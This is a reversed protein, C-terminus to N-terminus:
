NFAFGSRFTCLVLAVMLFFIEFTISRFHDSMRDSLFINMFTRDTQALFLTDFFAVAIINLCIWGEEFKTLHFTWVLLLLNVLGNTEFTFNYLVCHYPDGFGFYQSFRELSLSQRHDYSLLLWCKTLASGFHYLHFYFWTRFSAFLLLWIAVTSTFLLSTFLLLFSCNFRILILNCHPFQPLLLFLLPNPVPSPYWSLSPWVVLCTLAFLASNDKDQDLDTLFM